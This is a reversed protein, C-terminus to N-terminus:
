VEELITENEMFEKLTEDADYEKLKQM